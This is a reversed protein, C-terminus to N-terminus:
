AFRDGVLWTICMNQNRTHVLIRFADEVRLKSCGCGSWTMQEKRLNLPSVNDKQIQAEPPGKGDKARVEATESNCSTGRAPKLWGRIQQKRRNENSKKQESSRTIVEKGKSQVRFENSGLKAICCKLPWPKVPKSCRDAFLWVSFKCLAELWLWSASAKQAWKMNDVM